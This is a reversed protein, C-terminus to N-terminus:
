EDLLAYGSELKHRITMMVDRRDIEGRNEMRKDERYIFEILLELEEATLDVAITQTQPSM